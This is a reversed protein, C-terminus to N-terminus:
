ANSENVKNSLLKSWELSAREWTLLTRSNACNNRYNEIQEMLRVIGDVYTEPELSNIVIGCSNTAVFDSIGTYSSIVVPIDRVICEPVSNAFNENESPLLLIDMKSLVNELAGGYLLGHFKVKHLIELEHALAVLSSQLRPNGSGIIDLSASIGRRNLLDIIRISIDIRKKDTIRNLSVLNLHELSLNKKRRLVPLETGYPIVTVKFSAFPTILNEAELKSAVVLEFNSLGSLQMFQIFIKKRIPGQNKEYNELSGHPVVIFRTKFKKFFAVILNSFLFFGNVIIVDSRRIELILKPLRILLANYASFITNRLILYKIKKQKLIDKALNDVRGIIILEHQFPKCDTISGAIGLTSRTPGGSEVELNGSIQLVRM